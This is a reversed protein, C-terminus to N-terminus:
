RNEPTGYYYRNYYENGWGLLKGDKFVLPMCEDQTTLGDYWQPDIYYFWVDPRCYDEGTVPEGMVEIVQAKTMGVRLGASNQLNRRAAFYGTNSCGSLALGLSFVTLFLVLNKMTM